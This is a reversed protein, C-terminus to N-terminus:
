DIFLKGQIKTSLTYLKEYENFGIHYRHLHIYRDLTKEARNIMNTARKKTKKAQCYKGDQLLSKISEQMADYQAIVKEVLMIAQEDKIQQFKM